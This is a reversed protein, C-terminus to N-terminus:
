PTDELVSTHDHVILWRDNMKRLVLTFNGSLRDATRRLSWRGLVFCADEGLSFVELEEFSLQGMAEQDPYKQRYRDLTAQWSRTTRGGSSFTLQDSKWYHEMFREISGANWAAAQEDLM